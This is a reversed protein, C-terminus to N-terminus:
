YQSATQRSRMTGTNKRVRIQTLDYTQVDAPVVGMDSNAKSWLVPSWFNGETSTFGAMLSDGVDVFRDYAATSLLEVGTAGPGITTFDSESLPSFHWGGRYRKGRLATRKQVYAAVKVSVGDGTIAGVDTQDAFLYPDTIDELYRVGINSVAYRNNLALILTTIVSDHFAEIVNAKVIDNVTSARRYHFLNVINQVDGGEGGTNIGNVVLEVHRIDAQAVPM